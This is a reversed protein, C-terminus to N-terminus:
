EWGEELRRLREKSDPHTSFMYAWSPLESESDLIEFLQGAGEHHGYITDICHVAFEDAKSEQKRSYSLLMLEAGKFTVADPGGGFIISIAVTFGLRRGIGKLHDRHAFHGLEHSIVFAIPIEGELSDLLGSTIGINGGPFAFANPEPNQVFVLEYDLDVVGDYAMLKDMVQQVQDWEESYEEPIETEVALHSRLKGFIEREKEVSIRSVALDTLFSIILFLGVLSVVILTVLTAMEKFTGSPGGGSSNEAASDDMRRPTYKM